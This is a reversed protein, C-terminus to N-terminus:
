PELNTQLNKPEFPFVVSCFGTLVKEKSIRLIFCVRRCIGFCFVSVGDNENPVVFEEELGNNSRQIVFSISFRCESQDVVSLFSSDALAVAAVM